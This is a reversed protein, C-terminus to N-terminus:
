LQHCGKEILEAFGKAYGQMEGDWPYYVGQIYDGGLNLYEIIREREKRSDPNEVECM